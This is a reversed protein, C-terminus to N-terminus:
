KTGESRPPVQDAWSFREVTSCFLLLCPPIWDLPHRNLVAALMLMTLEM